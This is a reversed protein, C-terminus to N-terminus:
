KKCYPAKRRIAPQPVNLELNQCISQLMGLKLKKLTENRVITCIDFLDFVILNQLSITELALNRAMTFTIEEESAQVNCDDPLQKRVKAALRSFYSSIEQQSLVGDQPCAFAATEDGAIEEHTKSVEPKETTESETQTPQKKNLLKFGGPIKRAEDIVFDEM